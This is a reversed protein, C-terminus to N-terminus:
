HAIDKMGCEQCILLCQKEPSRWANKRHQSQQWHEEHWLSYEEIESFRERGEKVMQIDSLWPFQQVVLTAQHWMQVEQYTTTKRPYNM